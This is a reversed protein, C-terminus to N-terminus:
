YVLGQKVVLPTYKHITCVMRLQHWGSLATRSGLKGRWNRQERSVKDPYVMFAGDQHYNRVYVMLGCRRHYTKEKHTQIILTVTM